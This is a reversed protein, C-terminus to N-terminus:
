GVEVEVIGDQIRCTVQEEFEGGDAGRKSGVELKWSTEESTRVLATAFRSIGCVKMM